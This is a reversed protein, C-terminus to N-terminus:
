LADMDELYRQIFREALESPTTGLRHAREILRDDIDTFNQVHRVGYGRHELYRRIVDFIVYSMGHGVHSEDYPTIGCVYMRVQAPDQPAFGEKAGSLTNTIGLM